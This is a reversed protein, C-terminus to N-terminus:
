SASNIGIYICVDIWDERLNQWVLSESTRASKKVDFKCYKVYVNTQQEMM